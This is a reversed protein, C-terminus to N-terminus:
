PLPDFHATIAVSGDPGTAIIYTTDEWVFTQVNSKTEAIHIVYIFFAVTFLFATTVALTFLSLYKDDM